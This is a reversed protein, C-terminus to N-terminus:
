ARVICSFLKMIHANSKLHTPSRARIKNIPVTLAHQTKFEDNSVNLRSTQYLSHFM